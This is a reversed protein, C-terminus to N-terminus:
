HVLRHAGRAPLAGVPAPTLRPRNDVFAPVTFEFRTMSDRRRYILDGGMLRALQRSVALGLGVSEPQTSEVHAREYAEFIAQERGEPVGAGDDLVTVAILAGRREVDIAVHDGGYRQANTLLNRIV